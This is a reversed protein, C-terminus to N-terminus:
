KLSECFSKDIENEILECRWESILKEKYIMNLFDDELVLSDIDNWDNSIIYNDFEEKLDSGVIQWSPLTNKNYVEQNKIFETDEAIKKIKEKDISINNKKLINDYLLNIIKNKRTENDNSKEYEEFLINNEIIIERIKDVKIWIEKSKKLSSKQIDLIENKLKGWIEYNNINKFNDLKQANDLKENNIVWQNNDLEENNIVWQSNWCSTILLFLFSLIVIKKYM